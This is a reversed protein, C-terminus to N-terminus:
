DFAERAEDELQRVLAAVGEDSIPTINQGRRYGEPLVEVTLGNTSPPNLSAPLGHSALARLLRLAPASAEPKALLAIHAQGPAPEEILTELVESDLAFGCAPADEGTVLEVLNDYRGGSGLVEGDTRWQFVLGTYYEFDRALPTVITHRLGASALLSSAGSLEVLSATLEPTESGLATRLNAVYEPGNGVSELLLTMGVELGPLAETMRGIAAADGTLILDYTESQEVPTWGTRALLARVIGSHSILLEREQLGLGDLITDGLVILEVETNGASAGIVEAGVQWSERREDGAAFRLVPQAYFLKKVQGAYREGYLRAVAVTSDPRLVVREGSWGDWDLFSYVRGLLQPSLTGSRTYLHLQEILPTRIEEFGWARAAASFREEVRRLRRMEAGSLDIMGPCRLSKASEPM